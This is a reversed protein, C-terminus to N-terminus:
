ARHQLRAVFGRATELTRERRDERTMTEEMQRIGAPRRRGLTYDSCRLDACLYTGLTNHQGTRASPRAASYLSVGSGPHLTMCFQCMQAAGGGRRATKALVIGRPGDETEIVAYGRQPSKPDIWGLFIEASWEWSSLGAPLNLRQAEGKSCNIFSHRIQSETLPQM